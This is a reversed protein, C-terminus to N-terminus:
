SNHCSLLYRSYSRERLLKVNLWNVGAAMCARPVSEVDQLSILNVLRFLPFGVPRIEWRVFVQFYFSEGSTGDGGCLVLAGDSLAPGTLRLAAVGAGKDVMRMESHPFLASHFILRLPIHTQILIYPSCSILPSDSREGM